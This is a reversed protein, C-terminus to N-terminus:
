YCHFKESGIHAVSPRLPIFTQYITKTAHGDDKWEPGLFCIAGSLVEEQRAASNKQAIVLTQCSPFIFPFDPSYVPSGYMVSISTYLM